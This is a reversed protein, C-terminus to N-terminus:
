PSIPGPTAPQSDCSKDTIPNSTEDERKKIESQKDREGQYNLFEAIWEGDFRDVFGSPDL